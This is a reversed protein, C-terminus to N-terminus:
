ENKWGRVDIFVFYQNCRSCWSKYLSWRYIKWRWLSRHGCRPCFRDNFYHRYEEDTKIIVIPFIRLRLKKTVGMLHEGGSVLLVSLVFTLRYQRMKISM